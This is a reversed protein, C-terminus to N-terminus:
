FSNHYESKAVVALQLTPSSSLEIASDAAASALACPSPVEVARVALLRNSPSCLAECACFLLEVVRLLPLRLGLLPALQACARTCPVEAPCACSSRFARAPFFVLSVRSSARVPLFARAVCPRRSLVCACPRAVPPPVAPAPPSCWLAARRPDSRSPPSSPRAVMPSSKPDRRLPNPAM